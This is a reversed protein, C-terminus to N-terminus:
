GNKVGKNKVTGPFAITFKTGEGPVLAITGRLQGALVTVFQLGLTLTHRFDVEPPFGIGDDAVTLVNQGASDRAIGLRIVGKRGAPFAYKFSNSVLENVILGCPIAVTVDLSLPEMEVRLDVEPRNYTEALDVVFSRLYEKVDISSYDQAQYLKEHILAMSMVRNRSEEFKIRTAPDAIGKAQLDLLSYVVQLNNKVRHHIEQLLVTKEQLAHAIHEEALKRASIDLGIGVHTKDSLYINTWTTEINNGEKTRITLDCWEHSLSNMFEVVNKRYEHDPYCAVLLDIDKIEENSYGLVKECEKNVRFDQINSNYLTIMVPIADFIKRLLERENRLSEEVSRLETVDRATAYTVGEEKNLIARWSLWRVSGDRCLYRNEFNLSYGKELQRAMEELTAQKDEPHVFEIFPKAVLESVSYGLTETCAPNTRIFAGNPDAIVMLDSSTQFFKYFQEREIEAQKRETVDHIISILLIKGNSQIPGSYVEVERVTGDQLRHKFFFHNRNHLKALELEAAVEEQSLTNIDSINKQVLEKRSWGYYHCAAPNADVIAGGEAEIALIVSQNEEFFNRYRAESVRLREAAEARTRYYVINQQRWLLALGAAAALLLAAALGAVMWLDKRALAEIEWTNMRAVLFWPSDPVPALNAIVPQDRYDVGEVMGTQGLVAMVPPNATKTLPLRFNLAADKRFRLDVLYLVEEGERRVLLTEATTSPTPWHLVFPYLFQEPDMRLSLVGVARNGYRENLLPILLSLHIRQEHEDRYFDVFVTQGSALVESVNKQIIAPIPPINASAALRIIGQGDFLCVQDYSIKQRYLQLLARIPRELEQDLPDRFFDAARAAFLPNRFLVEADGLRENRWQALEAVKLEAVAALELEMQTRYHHKYGQYALDAVVVIGAAFLCFIVGFQFYSNRKALLDITM